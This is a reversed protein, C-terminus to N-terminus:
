QRICELSITIEVLPGVAGPREKVFGIDFDNMDLEFSAEFGTRYDGFFTDGAGIVAGKATVSKTVGHLELDGTIRMAEPTGEIATSKFTIKPFEKVSFFDPSRLHEDRDPSATDITKADIEVEISSSALDDADYAVTGEVHNFRGWFSSVGLHTTRFVVGSHVPDAAFTVPEAVPTAAGSSGALLLWGGLSAAALIPLSLKM